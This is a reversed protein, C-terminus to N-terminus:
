PGIGDMVISCYEEPSIAPVESEQFDKGNRTIMYDAHIRVAAAAQLADEYDNWGAEAAKLLDSENLEAFRFILMLIRLTQEIAEANLERRMIYVLNAFTLASIYGEAQNTECLKWVKASNKVHPERNQLVDLVINGDILLRM